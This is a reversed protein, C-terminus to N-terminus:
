LFTYSATEVQWSILGGAVGSLEKSVPGHELPNVPDLGQQPTTLLSEKWALCMKLAPDQLLYGQIGPFPELQLIEPPNLAPM